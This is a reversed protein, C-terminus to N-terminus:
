WQWYHRAECLTQRAVVCVCTETESLLAFAFKERLERRAMKPSTCFFGIQIPGKSHHPCLAKSKGGHRFRVTASAGPLFCFHAAQQHRIFGPGPPCNVASLRASLAGAFPSCLAGAVCEAVGAVKRSCRGRALGPVHRCNLASPHPGVCLALFDLQTTILAGIRCTSWLPDPSGAVVQALQPSVLNFPIHAHM